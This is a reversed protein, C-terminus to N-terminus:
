SEPNELPPCPTSAVGIQQAIIAEYLQGMYDNFDNSEFVASASIHGWTWVLGDTDLLALGRSVSQTTAGYWVGDRIDWVMHGRLTHSLVSGVGSGHYAAVKRAWGRKKLMDEHTM